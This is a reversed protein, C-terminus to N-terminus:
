RQSVGAWQAAQKKITSDAAGEELENLSFQSAQVNLLQVVAPVQFYFPKQLVFVTFGGLSM